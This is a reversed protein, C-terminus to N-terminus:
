LLFSVILREAGSVRVRGIERAGHDDLESTLPSRPAATHPSQPAFCSRGHLVRCKPLPKPLCVAVQLPAPARPRPSRGAAGGGGGSGGPGGPPRHQASLPGPQGPVWRLGGCARQGPGARGLGPMPLAEWRGQTATNGRPVRDRVRGAGRGRPARGKRAPHQPPPPVDDLVPFFLPSFYQPPLLLSLM